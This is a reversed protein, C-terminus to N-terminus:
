TEVRNPLRYSIDGEATFYFMVAIFAMNSLRTVWLAASPFVGQKTCPPCTVKCWDHTATFYLSFLREFSWFLGYEVAVELRQHM